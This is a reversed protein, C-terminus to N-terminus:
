EELQIEDNVFWVIQLGSDPSIWTFSPVDGAAPQPSSAPSGLNAPAFFRDSRAWIDSEPFVSKAELPEIGEPQRTMQAAAAPRNEV